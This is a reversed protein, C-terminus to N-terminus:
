TFFSFVDGAKIRAHITEVAATVMPTMPCGFAVLAPQIGLFTIDPVIEGLRELLFTLPLSHTNMFPMAGITAADVIRVTGAAEEMEAADVLLLRAPKLAAVQHAHNEPASGGDIVRWGAVPDAAMKEALLPGAGDDGMMVNGVVFLLDSM